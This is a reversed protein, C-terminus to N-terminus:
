RSLSSDAWFSTLPVGAVAPKNPSSVGYQGEPKVFFRGDEDRDYSMVGVNYTGNPRCGVLNVIHEKGANGFAQMPLTLFYAVPSAGLKKKWESGYRRLVDSLHRVDGPNLMAPVPIGPTHIWSVPEYHLQMSYYEYAAIMETTLLRDFVEDSILPVSSITKEM